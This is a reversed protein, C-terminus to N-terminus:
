YKWIRQYISLLPIVSDYAPETRLIKLFIWLNKYHSLWNRNEGFSETEKEGCGWWYKENRAKKIIAMRVPLLHYRMTVKIQMLKHHQVDKMLRNAM